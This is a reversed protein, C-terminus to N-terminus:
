QDFRKSFWIRTSRPDTPHVLRGFERYGLREYFAPAQFADTNLFAGFCGRRIAEAEAM